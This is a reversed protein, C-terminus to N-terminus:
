FHFYKPALAIALHVLLISQVCSTWTRDGTGYENDGSCTQVSVLMPHLWGMWFWKIKQSPPTQPWLQHHECSVGPELILSWKQCTWPVLHSAPSSFWTLWPLLGGGVGRQVIARAQWFESSHRGLLQQVTSNQSVYSFEHMEALHCTLIKVVTLLGHSCLTQLWLMHDWPFM